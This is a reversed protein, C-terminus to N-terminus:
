DSPVDILGGSLPPTTVPRRFASTLKEYSYGLELLRPESFAPGLFSITVPLRDSTFGAPIVLEPFGGMSAIQAYKDMPDEWQATVLRPGKSSTPFVIADIREKAFIGNILANVMQMYYDHIAVYGPDNLTGRGSARKLWAWHIPSQWLGSRGSSAYDIAREILEELSKPYKPLTYKKLYEGICVKFEPVLEHIADTGFRLLWEPYRVEVISAGANRMTTISAEFIWDVDSGGGMVERAIGLRASELAGAKLFRTYDSPLRGEAKRTAPDAVDAGVLQNLAFAVDSVTRAMPGVTDLSLSLPIVGNRSILGLTPRLGVIGMVSSPIRISGNTDTGVGLSAYGAAIAVGAGSSSGSATRALDHPNLSRGGLSSNFGVSFEGMNVKALIVSGAERLKKVVYADDSPTSGELLASGATTPMDITNVNDKLVIPIGHLPSRPGKAKRELDLSRAQELASPNLYIVANLKPGGQDYASM